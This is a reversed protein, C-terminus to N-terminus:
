CASSSLGPHDLIHFRANPPGSHSADRLTREFPLTARTIPYYEFVYQTLIMTGVLDGYTIQVEVCGFDLPTTTSMTRWYGYAYAARDNVLWFPVRGASGAMIDSILSDELEVLAENLADVLDYFIFDDDASRWWNV